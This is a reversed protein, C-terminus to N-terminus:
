REGEKGGKTARRATSARYSFPVAVSLVFFFSLFYLLPSGSSIAAPSSRAPVFRPILGAPRRGGGRRGDTYASGNGDWGYKAPFYNRGRVRLTADSLPTIIAILSSGVGHISKRARSHLLVPPSPSPSPFPPRYERLERAKFIVFKASLIFQM